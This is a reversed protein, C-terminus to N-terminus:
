ILKVQKLKKYNNPTDCNHCCKNSQKLSYRIRLISNTTTVSLKNRIKTKILNLQSFLREVESNSLTLLMVAFSGLLKFPNENSADKFNYVEYWFQKTIKLLMGSSSPHAM